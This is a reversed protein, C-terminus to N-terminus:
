RRAFLSLRLAAASATYIDREGVSSMVDERVRCAALRCICAAVNGQSPAAIEAIGRFRLIDPRFAIRVVVGASIPGYSVLMRRPIM